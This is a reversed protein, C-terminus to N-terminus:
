TGQWHRPIFGSTPRPTSRLRGGSSATYADGYSSTDFRWASGVGGTFQMWVHGGNCWITVWQGKGPQGWNEYQGSVPANPRMPQPIPIGAQNLVWSVGSSCDAHGGARQDNRQPQSYSCNWATMASAANYIKQAIASGGAAGGGVVNGSLGAASLGGVTTKSSTENAPELEPPAPRKLTIETIPDSLTRRVGSVLWLGDGPGEGVVKAVDGPAAAWRRALARVTAEAANRRADAEFTISLVGQTNSAFVFRPTQTKLWDESVFWLEGRRLFRDWAVEQALRGMCDWSSEKASDASGRSFEYPMVRTTSDMGISLGGMSTTDGFDQSGMIASVNAQSESLWQAPAQPYASGQVKNSAHIPDMTKCYNLYPTMFKRIAYNPDTVQAYTGWGCSPRQQYLGASDRDGGRLNVAASEQIMTALAGALQAPTAGMSKGIQCCLRMNGIQEPSAPTHKVTIGAM